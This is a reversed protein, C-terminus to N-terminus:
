GVSDPDIGCSELIREGAEDVGPQSASFAKNFARDIAKKDTPDLAAVERALDLIPTVATAADAAQDAPATEIVAKGLTVFSQAWAVYAPYDDAELTGFLGDLTDLMGRVNTCFDDSVQGGADTTTADTPETPGSTADTGDTGDTADPAGGADIVAQAIEELVEIALPEGADDEGEVAYATDGSKFYLSTRYRVASDGIDDVRVKDNGGSPDTRAVLQDYVEPDASYGVELDWSVGDPGGIFIAFRCTIFDITGDSTTGTGVNDQPLYGVPVQGPLSECDSESGGAELVGLAIAELDEPPPDGADSNILSFHLTSDATQVYLGGNLDFFSGEGIQTDGGPGADDSELADTEFTDYSAVDPEGNEDVIIALEVTADGDTEYECGEWTLTGHSGGITGGDPEVGTFTFGTIDGMESSSLICDYADPSELDSSESSADADDDGDGSSDDSCGATVLLLASGAVLTSTRIWRTVRM